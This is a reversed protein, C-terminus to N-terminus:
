FVDVLKIFDNSSTIPKKLDPIKQIANIIPSYLTGKNDYYKLAFGSSSMPSGLFLKNYDNLYSDNFQFNMSIFTIGSRIGSSIFDYNKTYDQKNPMLIYLETLYMLKDQEFTISTNFDTISNLLQVYNLKKNNTIDQCTITNLKSNIYNASNKYSVIICVKGKLEKLQTDKLNSTGYILAKNGFVNILANYVGLYTEYIDSNIELILFLPDSKNMFTNFVRSMTEAFDLSNYMEKYKPKDISATAIIPKKNLSYIEFHLARVGQKNCNDLACFNVYDNKFNGTCCCNYATKVFLTNLSVDFSPKIIGTSEDFISIYPDASSSYKKITQCNSSELNIKNIIYLMIIVLIFCMSGLLYSITQDM